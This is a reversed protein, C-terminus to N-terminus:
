TLSVGGDVTLVTGTVWSAAPSALYVAAAAVDDPIGIRRLPVTAAIADAHRELIPAMMRSEFPGPAIANVTVDPALRRALHRTFHHVAAKSAVYAYNDLDGVREGSISGINVVRAPAGETASARLAPLLMRTLHSVGKLNVALVGEWHAEDFEEFPATSAGGANNVLVDLEDFHARVAGALACCGDETSVDAVEAICEGRGRGSLEKARMRIADADRGCIVVHAGADVFGGAIMAGIGHSGGTVVVRRGAVTFLDTIV